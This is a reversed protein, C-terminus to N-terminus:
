EFAAPLALAARPKKIPSSQADACMEHPGRGRARCIFWEAVALNLVWGTGMLVARSLEGTPGVMLTWPLLLAAQTGAGMGIAYGRMIWTGHRAFDRRRIADISLLLSAAMASGFVLRMGYLLAGDNVGPPFFLTIWLASGAALLGTPILVRGAAQHWVPWRGRMGPSVQFAGLACFTCASLIHLVLPISGAAFRASDSRVEGTALWFLRVAGALTPIVTLALLLGPAIWATKPPVLLPSM